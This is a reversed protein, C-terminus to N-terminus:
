KKIIKSIINFILEFFWVTFSLTLGFGLIIFIGSFDHYELSKTKVEVSPPVLFKLDVYNGIIYNTIGFERFWEIKEGIKDAIFHNRQLYFVM